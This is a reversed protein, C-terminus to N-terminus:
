GSVDQRRLRPSPAEKSQTSSHRSPFLLLLLLRPRLPYMPWHANSSMSAEKKGNQENNTREKSYKNDTKAQTIHQNM